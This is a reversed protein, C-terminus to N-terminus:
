LTSDTLPIKSFKEKNYAEYSGYWVSHPFFTFYKSCLPLPLNVYLVMLTVKWLRFNFQTINLSEMRANTDCLLCVGYRSCYLFHDTLAMYSFLRHKNQSCYYYTYIRPLLYLRKNNYVQQYMCYCGPKSPNFLKFSFYIFILRRM